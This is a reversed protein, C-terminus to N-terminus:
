IYTSIIFKLIYASKSTVMIKYVNYVNYLIGQTNSDQSVLLCLKIM